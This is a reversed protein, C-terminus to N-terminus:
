RDDERAVIPDADLPRFMERPDIGMLRMLRIKMLDQPVNKGSEWMGITSQSTELYDALDHQSMHLVTTRQAHIATAWRNRWEAAARKNM